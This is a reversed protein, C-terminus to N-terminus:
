KKNKNKQNLKKWKLKNDFSLVYVYFICYVNQFMKKKDGNIFNIFYSM